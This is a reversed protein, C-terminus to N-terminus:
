SKRIIESIVRGDLTLTTTTGVAVKEEATIGILYFSTANELNVDKLIEPEFLVGINGQAQLEKFREVDNTLTLSKLEVSGFEITVKGSL